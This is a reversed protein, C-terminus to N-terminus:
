KNYYQNYKCNYKFLQEEGSDNIITDCSEILPNSSDALGATGITQSTSIVTPASVNYVLPPVMASFEGTEADTNIYIRGANDGSGRWSNSNVKTSASVVPLEETNNEYSVITGNVTKVANLSYTDNTPTLVLQTVGINNNSLGYGLSKNGEIDGGVVRGTIHVLTNDYFTLNSMPQEFTYKIGVGTPYRGENVFSHGAKEIKIYHEGIPVSIEFRGYEDTEILKGEMTCINDDVCLNCGQVPYTTNEYYVVGSVPFSSVDDFSVDDHTLSNNSVYRTHYGPSFKHIGM